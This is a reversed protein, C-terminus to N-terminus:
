TLTTDMSGTYFFHCSFWKISEVIKLGSQRFIIINNKETETEACLPFDKCVQQQSSQVGTYRVLLEWCKVADKERHTVEAIKHM